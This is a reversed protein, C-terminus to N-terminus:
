PFIKPNIYYVVKPQRGPIDVQEQRLWGADILEQCAGTVFEKTDLLHWGKRHYIDRVTFGDDVKGAKIKAALEAAARTGEDGLLGYVRRAHSELYECWGAAKIAAENTVSGPVGSGAVDVLHLVLAVSPMLSRYKALHESILPNSEQRIKSELGTLWENFVAQGQESFNFYPRSTGDTAGVKTFDMDALSMIIEHARNKAEVLPWEDVLRWTNPEDPYILLQFRQVMGDNTLNTTSKMLYAQLKGPQIGGLVSICANTVDITGRGIRDVTHGQNGNWGELYFARDVQRDERDWNSLLGVLEDRFVLIGRPNENLLEGLKEITSDNTKFRRRKPAGPEQTGMFEAKLVDMNRTGKGKAAKKMDDKVADRSAKFVEIEAGHMLMAEDHEAKAELEMRILPKMVEALAPTKLMSPRAVVGGWLNPVVSWDDRQKPRIACGAGIVAASVVLAGAAVFDLPCQMRRAIDTLWPRFAGPILGPLLPEVPLLESTIKEPEPWEQNVRMFELIKKRENDMTKGQRGYHRLEHTM